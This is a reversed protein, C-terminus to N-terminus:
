NLRDLYIKANAEQVWAELTSNYLTDQKDALVEAELVDRVSDLGVEGEVADSVYKLIHIGYSTRVGQSSTDGVKALAMAAETFESVWNTSDASVPYGNEKAPSQQMGTDQGYQEMLTDFDEGEALKALVEDVTPQIAAYAAETAADLQAQLDSIQATLKEVTDTLDQRNKATNEDDASADDGLDSLSTQATTLESNASSIQSNLDSIKASDEDTLKILINKVYRYGAPVYYITTGNSVDTGYYSPNAEYRAKAEEMKVSYSQQLEEDSVTVDKVVEARLKEQAVSNETSALVEDYTPYGLETMKDAVAKDLEDGTLETDAFYYTKVSDVATQWTSDADAKAQAEEEDTLQDLGMERIKQQIVANQVLGDVAEQRAQSLATADTADYTMGYYSYYSEMYAQIQAVQANVTEKTIPDQGDIEIIPTQKDVEEDKVILSCSTTALLALVLVLALVIRKRM